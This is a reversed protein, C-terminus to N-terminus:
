QAEEEPSRAADVFNRIEGAVRDPMETLVAHKVGPLVVLRSREIRRTMLESMHPPSGVDLEGTMVLTESRVRDLQDALDNEALVRYAATYAAPDNGALSEIAERVKEPHAAAFAPTFWRDGSRAAIGAPGEQELLALRESSRAREEDSRGAVASIIVLREVTEPRSIAIAQAILGGLSFGAVHARAMGAQELVAVHDAVFDALEYPGPPKDSRGHGRLDYRIIRRGPGLATVVEDWAELRDGVGHILVLPPEAGDPHDVRAYLQVATDTM